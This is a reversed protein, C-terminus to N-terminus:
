VQDYVCMCVCHWYADFRPTSRFYFSISLRESTVVWFYFIRFWLKILTIPYHRYIVLFRYIVLHLIFYLVTEIHLFVIRKSSLHWRTSYKLTIFFVLFLKYTERPISECTGYNIILAPKLSFYFECKYLEMNGSLFYTMQCHLNESM